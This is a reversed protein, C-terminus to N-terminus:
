PPYPLDALASWARSRKSGTCRRFPFAPIVCRYSRFFQSAVEPVNAFQHVFIGALAVDISMIAAAADGHTDAEIEFALIPDPFICLEFRVGSASSSRRTTRAAALM